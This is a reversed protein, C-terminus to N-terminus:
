LSNITRMLPGDANCNCATKPESQNTSLPSILQTITAVQTFLM